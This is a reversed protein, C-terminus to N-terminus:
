KMDKLYGQLEHYQELAEKIQEKRTGKKLVGILKKHEAILDKLNMKKYNIGGSGVLDNDDDELMKNKLLKDNVDNTNIGMFKCYNNIMYAKGYIKKMTDFTM